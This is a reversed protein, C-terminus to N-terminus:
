GENYYEASILHSARTLDIGTVQQERLRKSGTIRRYVSGRSNRSRSKVQPERTNHVVYVARESGERRRSSHLSCGSILTSRYSCNRGDENKRYM